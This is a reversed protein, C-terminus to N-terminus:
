TAAQLESRLAVEQSSDNRNKKKEVMKDMGRPGLSTRIADAVALRPSSSTSVTASTPLRYFTGKAATINSYRISAPKGRDKFARPTQKQGRGQPM